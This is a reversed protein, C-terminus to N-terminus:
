GIWIQYGGLSLSVGTGGILYDSPEENSHHSADSAEETM